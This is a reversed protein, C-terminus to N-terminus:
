AVHEAERIEQLVHEVANREAFARTTAARQRGRTGARCNARTAIHQQHAVEAVVKAPAIRKRERDTARRLM